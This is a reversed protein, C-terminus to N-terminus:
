AQGPVTACWGRWSLGAYVLDIDDFGCQALLARDAQESQMHADEGMLHSQAKMVIEESVGNFRAYRVFREVSRDRNWGALDICNNALVFRAGPKLRVRIANLTARKDEEGAIVHLTMLCCGGDFPGPLAKKIDGHVWDVRRGAQREDMRARALDLMDASPDVACFRWEPHVASLHCLENGGGAGVVLATGAAGMSEELLQATIDLLATYGPAFRLPGNDVYQAIHRPDNFMAAGTRM